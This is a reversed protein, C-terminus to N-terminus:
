ASVTVQGNKILLVREVTTFYRVPRAEVDAQRNLTHIFQIPKAGVRVGTAVSSYPNTRLDVGLYHQAGTLLTMPNSQLLVTSDFPDETLTYSAKDVGRDLSYEAGSIQLEGGLAIGLEVFKRTESVIDRPYKQVDNVRVNYADAQLFAKSCYPGFVWISDNVSGESVLINKCM